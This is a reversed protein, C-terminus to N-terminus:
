KQEFCERFREFSGIVSRIWIIPVIRNEKISYHFEVEEAEFKRVMELRAELVNILIDLKKVNICNCVIDM